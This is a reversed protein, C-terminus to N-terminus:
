LTNVQWLRSFRLLVMGSAWSIFASGQLTHVYSWVVWGFYWLAKWIWSERIRTEKLLLKMQSSPFASPLWPGWGVMWSPWSGDRWKSLESLISQLWQYPFQLCSGYTIVVCLSDWIVGRVNLNHINVQLLLETCWNIAKVMIIESMFRKLFDSFSKANELRCNRWTQHFIWETDHHGSTGSREMHLEWTCSWWQHLTGNGLSWPCTM